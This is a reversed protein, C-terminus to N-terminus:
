RPKYPLCGPPAVSSSSKTWSKASIGADKLANHIPKVVRELLDATLQEFKARTLTLQLHKPGLADATIFPLNIWVADHEVARDESKPRKACVSYHRATMACDIGQERKFEDAIWGVM